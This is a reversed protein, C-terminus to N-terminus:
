RQGRRGATAAAGPVPAPSRAGGPRMLSPAARWWLMTAARQLAIGLARHRGPWGLHDGGQAQGVCGDFREM